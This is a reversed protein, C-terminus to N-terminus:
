AGGGVGHEGETREVALGGHCCGRVGPSPHLVRRTRTRLRDKKVQENIQPEVPDGRVNSCELPEM